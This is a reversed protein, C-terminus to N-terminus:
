FNTELLESGEHTVEANKNLLWGTVAAAIAGSMLLAVPLAFVLIVAIILAGIM